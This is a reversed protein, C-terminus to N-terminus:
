QSEVIGNDKGKQENQGWKGLLANRALNVFSTKPREWPRQSAGLVFKLGNKFDKPDYSDTSVKLVWIPGFNVSSRALVYFDVWFM